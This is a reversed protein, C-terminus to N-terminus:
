IKESHSNPRKLDILFIGGGLSLIYSITGFVVSVTLAVDNEIGIIGYCSVLSVERVGWGAYSIPLASIITIIPVFALCEFFSIKLTAVDQTVLFIIYSYIIGSVVSVTIIKSCTTVNLLLVRTDLSLQWVYKFLKSKLLVKPFHDASIIIILGTILAVLTCISFLLLEYNMKFFLLYVISILLAIATGIAGFIRDQIVSSVAHNVALGTDKLSMVKVLEGGISGPLAVNVFLGAYYLKFVKAINLNPNISKLILFWRIAGLCITLFLLQISLLLTSLQIKSLKNTASKIDITYFLVCLIAVLLILKWNRRFVLKPM